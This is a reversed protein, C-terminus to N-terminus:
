RRNEIEVHCGLNVDVFMVVFVMESGIHQRLLITVAVWLAQSPRRRRYAIELVLFISLRVKRCVGLPGRLIRGPSTAFISGDEFFKIRECVVDGCINCPCFEDERCLRLKIWKVLRLSIQLNLNEFAVSWTEDARMETKLWM